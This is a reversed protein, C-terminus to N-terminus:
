MSITIVVEEGGGGGGVFVYVSVCREKPMEWTVKNFCANPWCNIGLDPSLIYYLSNFSM